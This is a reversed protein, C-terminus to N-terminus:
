GRKQPLGRRLQAALAGVFGYLIASAVVLRVSVGDLDPWAVLVVVSVATAVCAGVWGWQAVAAFRRAFVLCGAVMGVSALAFGVEHLVGHWSMEPAGEPAGPPFGAGADTVFVGAVVLGAGLGGVLLPGWTGGRGPRLARRMGAACAIFLLGTLVFNAIQVWGLDGLSLLSLPHRSLDYRDRTVAQALGVTLFLPGAVIGCALLRSTRTAPPSLITSQLSM